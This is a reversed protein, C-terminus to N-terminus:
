ARRPAFGRVQARHRHRILGHHLHIGPPRNRDAYCYTYTNRYGYPQTDRYTHCDAHVDSLQAAPMMGAAALQRRRGRRLVVPGV